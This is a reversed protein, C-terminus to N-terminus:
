DLDKEQVAKKAILSILVNNYMAVYNGFNEASRDAENLDNENEDAFKVKLDPISIEDMKLQESTANPFFHCNSRRNIRKTEENNAKEIGQQRALQRDYPSFESVSYTEIEM